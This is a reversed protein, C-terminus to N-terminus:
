QFRGTTGTDRTIGFWLTFRDRGAQASSGASQYFLTVNTSSLLPRTNEGHTGGMKKKTTTKHINGGGINKKPLLSTGSDKTPTYSLGPSSMNLLRRVRNGLTGLTLRYSPQQEGHTGWKNEHTHIEELEWYLIHIYGRM